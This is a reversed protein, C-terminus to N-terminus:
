FSFRVLLVTATQRVARDGPPRDCAPSRQWRIFARNGLIWMVTARQPWFRSVSWVAWYRLVEPASTMPHVRLSTLAESVAASFAAVLDSPLGARTAARQRSGGPGTGM